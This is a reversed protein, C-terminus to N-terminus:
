LLKDNDKIREYKLNKYYHSIFRKYNPLVSKKIEQITNLYEEPDDSIDFGILNQRYEEVKYSIELKQYYYKALREEIQSILKKNMKTYSVINRDLDDSTYNQLINLLKNLQDDTIGTFNYLCYYIEKGEPQKSLMPKLLTVKQFFSSM